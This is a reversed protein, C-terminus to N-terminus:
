GYTAKDLLFPDQYFSSIAQFAFSGPIMAQSKTKNLINLKAQLHSILTIDLLGEMTM